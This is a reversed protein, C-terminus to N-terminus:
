ISPRRLGFWFHGMLVKVGSRNPCLGGARFLISGHGNILPEFRSELQLTLTSQPQHKHRMCAKTGKAAQWIDPTSTPQASDMFKARQLLVSKYKDTPKAGLDEYRTSIENLACSKAPKLDPLRPFTM